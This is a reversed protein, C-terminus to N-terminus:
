PIEPTSVVPSRVLRVGGPTRLLTDLWAKGAWRYRIQIARAGEELAQRAQQLGASGAHGNAAGKILVEDIETLEELDRFLAALTAPDLDAATLPSM